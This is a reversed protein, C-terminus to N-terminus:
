LRYINKILANRMVEITPTQGTWLEFGKAGQLILMELGNLTKLGRQEAYELLKTTEPKYIIDYVLANEPLTALSNKSLPSIRENKGYMGLPTTNVVVSFESLDANEELFLCIINIHPFKKLIIEKLKQSNEQNRAFISIEKIGLQNLGTLVARAAGGSGIVAAKKNKINEKLVTPIAQVFGYVDTNYGYLKKDKDIVVTNVAGVVKAFDDITDLYQMVAIKHPITVNFGRFGNEKLFCIKEALNQPYTELPVYSGEIGIEKLAANHMAPSLSHELPYGIIGLKIM